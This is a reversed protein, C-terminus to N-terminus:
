ESVSYKEIMEREEEKTNDIELKKISLKIKKKERDIEIIEAKVRDGVNFSDKLNKIFEKSALQAPIFGDLNKELNIFMGFDMVAKIDKEVIDGVKYNELAKEVPSKELAKISGKIKHEECNLETVIFEVIDEAKIKEVTTGAWSIDSQHVFADVGSEVEIFIGFSKVDLVKGKLKTGVIFKEGATEWPNAQLQKIGLKLKRGSPDFDIIKVTIVDEIKVFESVNLKKKNWSFDSAHVLGEVGPLVEVFVGYPLIRTVKGSVEKNIEVTESAVEWPNRSLAKISLKLNKKEMDISIVKVQIKEGTKYCSKLDDIKKWSVESIHVFGRLSGCKVNVGFELVDGVEGDLVDGISILKLEEAGKLMTIDKKSFTVRKGKKDAKIEKVLVEIIKGVSAEADKMSIESLSNPLFGQQKIHELIYGGNIRKIIECTLIEKNEYAEEIIKLGEEMELRRRSGIIFDGDETEGIILVEVEEGLEVGELEESRVRIATPQGSADLYTFNRDKQALKATVKIRINEEPPLYENLLAEFENYEDSNFM